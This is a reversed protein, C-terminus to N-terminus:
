MGGRSIFYMAALCAVVFLVRFWVPAPRTCAPCPIVRGDHTRLIRKGGCACRYRARAGTM